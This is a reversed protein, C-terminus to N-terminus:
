RASSQGPQIGWVVCPRWVDGDTLGSYLRTHGLVQGWYYDVYYFYYDVYYFCCTQTIHLYTSLVSGLVHIKVVLSVLVYCFPDDVKQIYLWPVRLLVFIIM